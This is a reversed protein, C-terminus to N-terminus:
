SLLKKIRQCAKQERTTRAFQEALALERYSREKNGMKEMIKALHLHMAYDKPNKGILQELLETAKDYKKQRYWIVAQTDLFHPNNPDTKIAKDLYQQARSVDHGETAHYYALLNYLPPFDAGANMATTLIENMKEYQEQEFHIIGMNYWLRVKQTHDAALALAKTHYQLAKDFQGARTYLDALYLQPLRENPHTKEVAVLVNIAQEPPLKNGTVMWHFSKYWTEDNPESMMSKQLLALAETTKKQSMLQQLQALRADKDNKAMKPQSLHKSRLLLRQLQQEITKNPGVVNLYNRYGSIAEEIAGQQELLMGLFIWGQEYRPCMELSKKAEEIAKQKNNLQVYLQSKLFHFLCLRPHTPVNNLMTDIASLARTIDGRKTYAQAAFLTLEPSKKIKKQLEIAREDAADQDEMKPSNYLSQIFILQISLDDKFYQDLKPIMAIIPQYNDTAFLLQLFGEYAYPSPNDNLVHQFHAFSKPGSGAALEYSGLIYEQYKQGDVGQLSSLSDSSKDLVSPHSVASLHSYPFGLQLLLIVIKKQRM